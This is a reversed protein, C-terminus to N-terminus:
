RYIVFNYGSEGNNLIFDIQKELWTKDLCKLIRDESDAQLYDRKLL